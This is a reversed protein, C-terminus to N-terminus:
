KEEKTFSSYILTGFIFGVLMFVFNIPNELYWKVLPYAIATIAFTVILRRITM